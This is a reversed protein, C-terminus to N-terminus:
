TSVSEGQGGGPTIEDSNEITAKNSEVVNELLIELVNTKTSFSEVGILDRCHLNPELDSM